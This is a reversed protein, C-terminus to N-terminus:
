CPHWVYQGDMRRVSPIVVHYRPSGEKSGTVAGSLRSSPLALLDKVAEAVGLAVWSSNDAVPPALWKSFRYISNTNGGGCGSGETAGRGGLGEMHAGRERM